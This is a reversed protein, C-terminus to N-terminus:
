GNFSARGHWRPTPTNSVAQRVLPMGDYRDLVRALAADNGGSKKNARKLSHEQSGPITQFAESFPARQRVMECVTGARLSMVKLWVDDTKPALSLAADLNLVEPDFCGPFYLVGGVGTPFLCLSPAFNERDRRWRKYPLLRGRADVRMGHARHCHIHEPSRQHAHMLDAVMHEPYMVDDDVTLLLADPFARLAHHYKTHPGIHRECFRLELGRTQQRALLPPIDSQVFRDSPLWVVIRDPKCNQQLLSEITLHLQPLRQPIVTLSVVLERRGRLPAVGPQRCHLALEDLLLARAEARARRASAARAKASPKAQLWNM